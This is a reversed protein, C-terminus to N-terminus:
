SVSLSSSGALKLLLTILFVSCDGGGGGGGGEKSLSSSLLDELPSSNALSCLTFGSFVSVVVVVAVAVAVVVGVMKPVSVVAEEALVMAAVVVLPVM